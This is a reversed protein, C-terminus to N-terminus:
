ESPWKWTRQVRYAGDQDSLFVYHGPAKGKRGPWFCAGQRSVRAQEIRCNFCTSRDRQGGWGARAEIFGVRTSVSGRSCARYNIVYTRTEFIRCGGEYIAWASAAFCRLRRNAARITYGGNPTDSYRAKGAFLDKYNARVRYYQTSVFLAIASGERNRLTGDKSLRYGAQLLLTPLERPVGRLDVIFLGTKPPDAMARWEKTTIFKAGPLRRKPLSMLAANVPKVSTARTRMESGTATAWAPLVLLAVLCVTGPKEFSGFM